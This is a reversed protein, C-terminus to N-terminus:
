IAELFVADMSQQETPYTEVSIATDCAIIYYHKGILQPRQKGKILKNYILHYRKKRSESIVRINDSKSKIVHYKM